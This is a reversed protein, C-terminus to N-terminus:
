CEHFHPSLKRNKSFLMQNSVFRGRLHVRILAGFSPTLKLSTCSLNHSLSMFKFTFWFFIGCDLLTHIFYLGYIVLLSSNTVM